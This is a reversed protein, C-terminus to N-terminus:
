FGDGRAIRLTTSGGDSIAALHTDTKPITFVEVVGAPISMSSTTATVTSDGSKVYAEAAGVNCIRIVNGSGTAYAVRASTGSVTRSVAASPIGFPTNM